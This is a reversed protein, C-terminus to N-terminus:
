KGKELLKKDLNKLEKKPINLLDTLGTTKGRIEVTGTDNGEESYDYFFAGEFQGQSIPITIELVDHKKGYCDKVQIVTIDYPKGNFPYDKFYLTKGEVTELTKINTCGELAFM